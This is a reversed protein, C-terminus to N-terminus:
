ILIIKDNMKKNSIIEWKWRKNFFFLFITSLIIKADIIIIRFIDDFSIGQNLFLIVEDWIRNEIWVFGRHRIDVIELWM